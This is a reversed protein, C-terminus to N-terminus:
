ADDLANAITRLAGALAVGVTIPPSSRQPTEDSAPVPDPTPGPQPPRPGNVGGPQNAAATKLCALLEPLTVTYRQLDRELLDALRRNRALIELLATIRPSCPRPGTGAPEKPPRPDVSPRVVYVAGTLTQERTFRTGRLTKGVAVVRFRYIGYESGVVEAEFRGAATETLPLTQMGGSPAVLEAVVEARREIPLGYEALVAVLRMPSGVQIDKQHLRVDFKLSSRAQVVVAWRLGYTKTYQYAKPDRELSNLYKGFGARDCVLHLVWRGAGAPRGPGTVVPLSFRFYAVGAGAVFQMGAPLAAPTLVEGTPTELTARLVGPAPSLLIVDAGGDAENLLFPVKQAAGAQLHGSPDLVVQQNTVGALVQLYYKSLVFYEDGSLNGTMVVYGGTGNTVATLAQPNIDEPRGLGIAFTRDDIAGAVDAILKSANEQGDTLVIMATRDYGVVTDLQAAGMEMGDGISTAGAPNPAHSSVQVTAAIRGPGFVEPGAETVTMGLYANHDFRVVGVGNEPQIVDIFNRAAERLVDVRKRGDGADWDMSGSQDLVMMVATKPRAIANAVLGIDWEEATEVCRVRVTGSATSGAAGGQYRVWLRAKAGVTTGPAAITVANGLLM